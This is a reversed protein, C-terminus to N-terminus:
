FSATARAPRRCTATSRSPAARTPRFTSRGRTPPTPSTATSTSTPPAAPSRSGSAPRAASRRAAPRAASRSAATSTPSFPARYRPSTPAPTTSRRRQRTGGSGTLNVMRGSGTLDVNSIVLNGVAAGSIDTGNGTTGTDGVTFGKLTNNAALTVGIGGSATNVITADAGAAKLTTASIVLAEGGGILKQDALLAIGGGYNTGSSAVYITDGADDLGSAGSLSSLATYPRFSTGDSAGNAGAYNNDVYWVQNAVTITM